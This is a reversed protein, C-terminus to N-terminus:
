TSQITLPKSELHVYGKDYLDIYPINYYYIYNWIDERTFDLIPHVFVYQGRRGFYNTGPYGEDHRDGDMFIKLHYKHNVVDYINKKAELALKRRNEISKVKYLNKRFDKQFQIQIVKLKWRNTLNKIFEYTEDFETLSDQFIIPFPVVDKFMTKIIHLLVTSDKGGSWEIATYIRKYTRLTKKIILQALSIKKGLGHPLRIPIQPSVTIM